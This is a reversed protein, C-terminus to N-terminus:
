ARDKKINEKCYAQKRPLIHKDAIFGHFPFFDHLFAFDHHVKFAFFSFDAAIADKGSIRAPNFGNSRIKVVCFLNGIVAFIIDPGSVKKTFFYGGTGGTDASRGSGDGHFFKMHAARIGKDTGSGAAANGKFYFRVVNNNCGASNAIFVGGKFIRGDLEGSNRIKIGCVAKNLCGCVESIGVMRANNLIFVAEIALVMRFSGRDIVIKELFPFAPLAKANLCAFHFGGSQKNNGRGKAASASGAEVNYPVLLAFGGTKVLIHIGIGFFGYPNGYLGKLKKNFLVSFIVSLILFARLLPSKKLM